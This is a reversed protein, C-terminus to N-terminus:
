EPTAVANEPPTVFAIASIVTLEPEPQNTRIFIRLTHLGPEKLAANFTVTLTHTEGAPISRTDTKASLCICSTRIAKLELPQDGTNQIFISMTRVEGFRITEFNITENSVSLQPAAFLKLSILMFLLPFFLYRKSM